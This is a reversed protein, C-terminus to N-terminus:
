CQIPLYSESRLQLYSKFTHLLYRRTTSTAYLLSFHSLTIDALYSISQLSTQLNM